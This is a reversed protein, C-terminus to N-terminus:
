NYSSEWTWSEPAQAYLKWFEQGIERAQKSGPSVLTAVTVTAVHVGQEKLPEFLGQTMNRIGAKGVSLTLLGAMPSVALGGGTLLITGSKRSIMTPMAARIAVLAGSINVQIDNILTDTDLENLSATELNGAVDYRLVGANYHVVDVVDAHRSVLNEISKADAADVTDALLEYDPHESHSQAILAQVKARDRSALIVRFGNCAFQEATAMGIGPGAGIILFTKKM